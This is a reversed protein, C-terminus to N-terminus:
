NSEAISSPGKVAEQMAKPSKLALRAEGGLVVQGQWLISEKGKYVPEQVYSFVLRM